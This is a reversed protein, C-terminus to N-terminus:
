GVQNREEILEKHQKIEERLRLVETEVAVVSNHDPSFLKEPM